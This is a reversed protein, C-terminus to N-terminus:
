GGERNKFGSNFMHALASFKMAKRKIEDTNSEDKSEKFLDIPEDYYKVEKDFASAIAVQFYHGQLWSHNNITKMEEEKKLRYYEHFPELKKPNLM